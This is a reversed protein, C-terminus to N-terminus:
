TVEEGGYLRARTRLVDEAVDRPTRHYIDAVLMTTVLSAVQEVTRPGHDDNLALWEVARRYGLPHQSM